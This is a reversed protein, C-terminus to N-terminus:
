LGQLHIIKLKFYMRPLDQSALSDCTIKYRSARRGGDQIGWQMDIDWPDNNLVESQLISSWICYKHIKPYTWVMLAKASERIGSLAERWVCSHHNRSSKKSPLQARSPLPPTGSWEVLIQTSTLRQPNSVRVRNLFFFEKLVYGTQSFGEIKNGQKPCLVFNVRDQKLAM